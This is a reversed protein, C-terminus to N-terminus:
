PMEALWNAAVERAAAVTARGTRFAWKWDGSKAEYEPNVFHKLGDKETTLQAEFDISNALAIFEQLRKVIIPKPDEPYTTQWREVSEEYEAQRAARENQVGTVRYQRMVPDDLTKENDRYSQEVQARSEEPLMPLLSKRAEAMDKKSQAISQDVEQEPTVDYTIPQPKRELRIKAYDVKFEDSQYYAQLCLALARVIDARDGVPLAKFPVIISGILAFGSGSIVSDISNPGATTADIGLREEATGSKSGASTARSPREVGSQAPASATESPAQETKNGSGCGSAIGLLLVFAWRLAGNM